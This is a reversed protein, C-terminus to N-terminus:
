HIGRFIVKNVIKPSCNRSFTRWFSSLFMGYFSPKTVEGLSSGVVSHYSRETKFIILSIPDFSYYELIIYAELRYSYFTHYSIFHILNIM